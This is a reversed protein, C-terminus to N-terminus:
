KHWFDAHLIITTWRMKPGLRLVMYGDPLCQTIAEEKRAGGRAIFSRANVNPILEVGVVGKDMMAEAIQHLPQQNTSTQLGHRYLLLGLPRWNGRGATTLGLKSCIESMFQAGHCPLECVAWRQMRKSPRPLDEKPRMMLPQHYVVIKTEGCSPKLNPVIIATICSKRIISDM